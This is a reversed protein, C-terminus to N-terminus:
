LVKRSSEVSVSIESALHREEQARLGRPRTQRSVSIIKAGGLCTDQDYFVVAQGETVGRQPKDFTVFVKGDEIKQITCNQDEQRYRVKAQCVFPTIPPKTVWSAETAVLTKSFLAPHNEGQALVCVNKWFM